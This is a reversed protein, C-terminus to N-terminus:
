IEGKVVRENVSMVFENIKEYDPKEPLKTQKIAEQLKEERQDLLDYFEKKITIGDTFDGRKVAFLEERETKDELYTIFEGTLLLKIGMDYARLLHSMHKSIKGHTIAYNNRKNNKDYSSCVTKMQNWINCWDRLPYHKIDVDMYIEKDFESRISNDIYLKISNDDYPAYKEKEWQNVAEISQLIHKEKQEQDSANASKNQMRRIQSRSYQTFTHICLKSIFLHRNEYLEKGIPSMYLYHENRLGLLECTGPDAKTLLYVYKKLSKIEVDLVNNRVNDFDQGLLVEEKSNLAIGRIDVDSNPNELGYAYSGGLGLLIINSGLHENNRLFDYDPGTVKKKIEEITM